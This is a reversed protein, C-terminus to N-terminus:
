QPVVIHLAACTSPDRNPFCSHLRDFSTSWKGNVNKFSCPGMQFYKNTEMQVYSKISTSNPITQVYFFKLPQITLIRTFFRVYEMCFFFSKLSPSNRIDSREWVRVVQEVEVLFTQPQAGDTLFTWFLTPPRGGCHKWSKSKFKAFM